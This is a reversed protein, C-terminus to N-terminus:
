TAWHGRDAIDEDGERQQMRRWERAASLAGPDGQSTCCEDREREQQSREQQACAGVGMACVTGTAGVEGSTGRMRGLTKTIVKRQDKGGGGETKPEGVGEEEPTAKSGVTGSMVRCQVRRIQAPKGSHVLSNSREPSLRQGFGEITGITKSDM